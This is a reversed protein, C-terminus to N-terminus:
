GSHVSDNQQEEQMIKLLLDEVTDMYVRIGVILELDYFITNNDLAIAILDGGNYFIQDRDYIRDHGELLLQMSKWSEQKFIHEVYEGKM